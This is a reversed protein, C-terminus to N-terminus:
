RTIMLLYIIIDPLKQCFRFLEEVDKLNKPLSAVNSHFATLDKSGFTIGLDQLDCTELYECQIVPDDPINERNESLIDQSEIVQAQSVYNLLPIISTDTFMSNSVNSFPFVKMECKKSCIYEDSSAGLFLFQERSLSTCVLHTWRLCMDCQITDFNHCEGNCKACPVKVKHLTNLKIFDRKRRVSFFPFISMECRESCFWKNKNMTIFNISKKTMKLCKHHFSKTCVDCTLYHESSVCPQFCKGCPNKNANRRYFGRM